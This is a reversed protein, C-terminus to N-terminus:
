LCGHEHQTGEAFSLRDDDNFKLFVYVTINCPFRNGERTFIERGLDIENQYRAWIGSNPVHAFGAKRLRESVAERTEDNQFQSPILSVRDGWVTAKPDDRIESVVPNLMLDFRMFVHVVFVTVLVLCATLLLGTIRLLKMLTLTLAKMRHM